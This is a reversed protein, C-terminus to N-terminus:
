EKTNEAERNERTKHGTSSRPIITNPKDTMRDLVKINAM